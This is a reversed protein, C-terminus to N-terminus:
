VMPIPLDGGMGPLPPHPMENIGANREYRVAGGMAM